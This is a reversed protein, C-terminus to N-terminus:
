LWCAMVQKQLNLKIAVCGHGSRKMSDIIAKLRCHCFHITAGSVMHDVFSLMSARQGKVSFYLSHLTGLVNLFSLLWLYFSITLLM